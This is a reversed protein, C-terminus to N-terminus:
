RGVIEVPTDAFRGALATVEAALEAESLNGVDTGALNVNRVVGGSSTDVVWAIVLVVLLVVPALLLPLLWPRRRRPTGTGDGSGADGSGEPPRPADASTETITEDM